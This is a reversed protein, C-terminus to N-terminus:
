MRQRARLAPPRLLGQQRRSPSCMSGTASVMAGATPPICLTRLPCTIGTAVITAGATPPIPPHLCHLTPEAGSVLTLPGKLFGSKVQQYNTFSDPTFHVSCLRTNTTIKFEGCYSGKVFDIWGKRVCDDTPFRFLSVSGKGQVSHCGPFICSRRPPSM